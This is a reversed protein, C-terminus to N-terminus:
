LKTDKEIIEAEIIDDNKSPRSTSSLTGTSKLSVNIIRGGAQLELRSIGTDNAIMTAVGNRSAGQVPFSAQVRKTTKGNISTSSSSQSFPAGVLIPEGGLAQIVRDDLVLLRQADSLLEETTRQQEAMTEALSSAMSGVLSTVLRGMMRVPLPADKLMEQIGSTLETQQDKMQRQIEAKRQKQEREEESPFWSKPLISKVANGVSELIGDNKNSSSYLRSTTPPQSLHAPHRQSPYLPRSVLAPRTPLTSFAFSSSTRVCLSSSVAVAALRMMNRKALPSHSGNYSASAKQKNITTNSM